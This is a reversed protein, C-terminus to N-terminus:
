GPALSIEMKFREFVVGHRVPHQIAVVTFGKREFFPRALRSAETGLRSQGASRAMAELADYIRSAFGRRAFAPACYLFAVRDAPDLQGFAAPAGAEEAILTVGRALRRRFEEIDDPYRAWAEVQQLDYAQLGLGRVSDRFLHALPEADSHHYPRLRM